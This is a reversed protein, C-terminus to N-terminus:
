EEVSKTTGLLHENGEYPICFKWTLCTTVYRGDGKRIHSFLCARWMDDYSDRVLVKDFPKFQYETKIDEVVKKEANWYKGKITLADFLKIKEEDTAPRIEVIEDKIIPYEGGIDIMQLTTNLSAHDYLDDNKFYNFIEIFCYRKCRVFMVDGDKFELQTKEVELTKLNLKGGLKEEIANIYTETSYELSYMETACMLMRYYLAKDKNENNLYHKGYFRTYNDDDWRSFIVHSKGDNSVLIDGAKWAFKSWDRMKKSPVLVPEGYKNYKGDSYFLYLTSIKSRTYIIDEEDVKIRELNLEGFADAYLKTGIPKDKLINAINLEEEMIM